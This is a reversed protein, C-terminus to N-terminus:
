NFLHNIILQIGTMIYITILTPSPSVSIYNSMGEPISCSIIILTIISVIIFIFTALTNYKRVEMSFRYYNSYDSNLNSHFFSFRSIYFLFYCICILSALLFTVGGLILVAQFDEIESSSISLTSILDSGDFFSFMSIEISKSYYSSGINITFLDTFTLIILVVNICIALFNFIGAQPDAVIATKEGSAANSSIERTQTLVPSSSQVPKNPNDQEKGCQGCFRADDSIPKGCFKCFAPKEQVPPKTIQEKGCIECFRADDSIPNKCYKCYM